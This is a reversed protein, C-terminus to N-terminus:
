LHLFTFTRSQHIGEFLHPYYKKMEANMLEIPVDEFDGYYHLYEMYKQDNSFAQFLSDTEGDWDLTPVNTIECIRKDFAPTCKIWKENLFVEVYGHFVIEKRRLIATLKEIGIHNTVVAYGLRSPIGYNRLCTALVIGKEVCWARKKKITTSAKLGFHTLDLYYPDYIFYDRVFFYLKIAIEKQSQPDFTNNEEFEALFYQFDPQNYDLFLTEKLYQEM